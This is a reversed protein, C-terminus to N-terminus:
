AGREQGIGHVFRLHHDLAAGAPHELGGNV